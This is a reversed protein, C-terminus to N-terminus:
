SCEQQNVPTMSAIQTVNIDVQKALSEVQSSLDNVTRELITIKEQSLQNEKFLNQYTVEAEKKTEFILHAKDFDTILPTGVVRDTTAVMENDYLKKFAKDLINDLQTDSIEINTFENGLESLILNFLEEKTTVKM